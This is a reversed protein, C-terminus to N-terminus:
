GSKLFIVSNLSILVEEHFVVLGKAKFGALHQPALFASFFFHLLQENFYPLFLSVPLYDM